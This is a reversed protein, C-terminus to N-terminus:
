ARHRRLNALATVSRPTKDTVYPCLNWMEDTAPQPSEITTM